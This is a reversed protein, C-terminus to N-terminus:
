VRNLKLVVVVDEFFQRKLQFIRSFKFEYSERQISRCLKIEIKLSSQTMQAVVVDAFM